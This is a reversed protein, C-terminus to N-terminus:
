EHSELTRCDFYSHILLELLLYLLKVVIVLAPFWDDVINDLVLLLDIDLVIVDLNIVIEGLFFGEFGLWLTLLPLPTPREFSRWRVIEEDARGRHVWEVTDINAGPLLHLVTRPSEEIIIRHNPSPLYILQFLISDSRITSRYM